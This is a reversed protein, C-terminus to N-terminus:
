LHGYLNTIMLNRMKMMKEYLSQPSDDYKKGGFSVFLIKKNDIPIFLGFFRLLLSGLFNYAKFVAPNYKIFDIVRQKM